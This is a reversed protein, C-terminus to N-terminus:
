VWFRSISYKLVTWLLFSIWIKQHTFAKEKKWTSMVKDYENGYYGCYRRIFTNADRGELVRIGIFNM